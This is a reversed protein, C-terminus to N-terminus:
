KAIRQVQTLVTEVSITALRRQREHKAGGTGDYPDLNIIDPRFCHGWRLPRISPSGDWVVVMPAGAAAGLHMPGTDNTIMVTCRAALAALELLDTAPALEANGESAVRTALEEEGPGWVVLAKGYRPALERAVAAFREWPWAGEPHGSGPNILPRPTPMLVKARDQQAQGPYIRPRPDVRLHPFWPKVLDANYLSESKRSQSRHLVVRRHRGFWPLFGKRSSRTIDRCLTILRKEPFLHAVADYNGDAIAASLRADDWRADLVTGVAPNGTLISAAPSKALVDVTLGPIQEHLAALLPTVHMLDGIRDARVLLLRSLNM